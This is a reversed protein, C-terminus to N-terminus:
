FLIIYNFIRIIGLGSVPLAVKTTIIIICLIIYICTYYLIKYQLRTSQNRQGKRQENADTLVNILKVLSEEEAESSQIAGESGIWGHFVLTRWYNVEATTLKNRRFLVIPNLPSWKEFPIIEYSEHPIRKCSPPDSWVNLNIRGSWDSYAM